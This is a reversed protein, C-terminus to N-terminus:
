NRAKATERVSFTQPNVLDVVFMRDIPRMNINDRYDGPRQVM